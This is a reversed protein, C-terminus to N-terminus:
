GDREESEEEKKLKFLQSIFLLSLHNKYYDHPKQTLLCDFTALCVQTQTQFSICYSLFPSNLLFNSPFKNIVPRQSENMRLEERM